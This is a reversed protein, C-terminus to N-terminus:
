LCFGDKITVTFQWYETTDYKPLSTKKKQAIYNKPNKVHPKVEKRCHKDATVRRPFLALEGLERGECARLDM